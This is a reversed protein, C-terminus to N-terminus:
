VVFEYKNRTYESLSRKVEVNYLTDFIHMVMIIEIM